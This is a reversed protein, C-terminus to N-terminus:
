DEERNSAVFEAESEILSKLSGEAANGLMVKMHLYEGLHGAAQSKNLADEREEETRSSLGSIRAYRACDDVMFAKEIVAIFDRNKNLRLVADRIAISEKLSKKEASVKSASM